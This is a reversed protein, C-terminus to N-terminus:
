MTISCFKAKRFRLWVRLRIAWMVLWEWHWDRGTNWLKMLILPCHPSDWCRGLVIGLWICCVTPKKYRRKEKMQWTLIQTDSYQEKAQSSMWSSPLWMLFVQNRMGINRVNFCYNIPQDETAEVSPGFLVILNSSIYGKMITIWLKKRIRWFKQLNASIIQQIPAHM